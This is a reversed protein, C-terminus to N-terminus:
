LLISENCPKGNLWLLFVILFLALISQNHKNTETKRIEATMIGFSTAPAVFGWSPLKINIRSAEPLM